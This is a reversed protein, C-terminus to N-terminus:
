VVVVLVYVCTQLTQVKKFNLGTNMLTFARTLAL